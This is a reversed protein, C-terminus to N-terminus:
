EVSEDNALTLVAETPDSRPDLENHIPSIVAPVTVFILQDKIPIASKQTRRWLLFAALIGTTTTFYLMLGQNGLLRMFLPAIIPGVTAGIGYALLLGQTAAVIKNSSLYDCAHSISLPYLVFAFGGWAFAISLLILVHQVSCLVIALSSGMFCLTVAFTVIRRGLRDSLFGVPYQWLMGGLITIGMLWAVQVTSLGSSAGYAPLLGYICGLVLGSVFCGLTGSPSVRILQRLTLGEPELFQPAEIKTITMPVVSLSALMSAIVFPVLSTITSLGVLFQGLSQAGYIAVMYFSLIQGRTVPTSSNLVWSEIVVFLGAMCYGGLFRLVIWLYPDPFLGHIMTLVATLSAFGAYSRIHGSTLIFKGTHFAGVVMGAYYAAGVSGILLNSVALHHLKLVLLTSFLGNGLTLIVLSLLPLWVQCLVTLM